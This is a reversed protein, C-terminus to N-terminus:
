TTKSQPQPSVLASFTSLVGVVVFAVVEVVCDNVSIVVTSVVPFVTEVVFVVAATVSLAATFEM